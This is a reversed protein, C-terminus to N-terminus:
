SLIRGGGSTNYTRGVLAQIANHMNLKVRADGRVIGGPHIFVNVRRPAWEVCGGPACVRVGHCTSNDNTYTYLKGFASHDNETIIPKEELNIPPPVGRIDSSKPDTNKPNSKMKQTESKATQKVAKESKRKERELKELNDKRIDQDLKEEERSKSTKRRKINRKIQTEKKKMSLDQSNDEEESSSFHDSQGDTQTIVNAYLVAPAKKNKDSKMLREQENKNNIEDIIKNTKRYEESEIIDNEEDSEANSLHEFYEDENKDQYSSSFSNTEMEENDSKDTEPTKGQKIKDISDVPPQGPPPAPCGYQLDQTSSRGGGKTKRLKRKREQPDSTIKIKIYENDSEANSLNYFYNGKHEELNQCKKDLPQNSPPPQAGMSYTRPVLGAEGGKESGEEPITDMKGPIKYTGDKIAKRDYEYIEWDKINTSKSIKSIEKFETRYEKEDGYEFHKIKGSIVEKIYDIVKEYKSYRYEFEKEMQTDMIHECHKRNRRSATSHQHIITQKAHQYEIFIYGDGITEEFNFEVNSIKKVYQESKEFEIDSFYDHAHEVLHTDYNFIDKRILFEIHAEIDTLYDTIDLNQDM